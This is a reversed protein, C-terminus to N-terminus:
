VENDSELILPEGHIKILRGITERVNPNSLEPLKVIMSVNKFKYRLCIGLASAPVRPTTMFLFDDLVNPM